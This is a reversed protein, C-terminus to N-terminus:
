RRPGQGEAWNVQLFRWKPFTRLAEELAARRKEVVLPTGATNGAGTNAAAAAAAAESERLIQASPAMSGRDFSGDGKIARPNKWRWEFQFAACLWRVAVPQLCLVPPM